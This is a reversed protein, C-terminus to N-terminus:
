PSGPIGACPDLVRARGRSPARPCRRRRGPRGCERGKGLAEIDRGADGDPMAADPDGVRRVDQEIGVGVAVGLGVPRGRDDGGAEAASIGVLQGVGQGPSGIAPKVAPVADEVGAADHRIVPLRVFEGARNEPNVGSSALKLDPALARRVGPSQGDVVLAVQEGGGAHDVVEPMQGLRGVVDALTAGVRGKGPGHGRDDVVLM